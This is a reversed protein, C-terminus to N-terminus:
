IQSSGFFRSDDMRRVRKQTTEWPRREQRWTVASGSSFSNQSQQRLRTESQRSFGTQTHLRAVEYEDKYSLLKFYSRAVADPSSVM